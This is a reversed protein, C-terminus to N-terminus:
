WYPEEFCIECLDPDRDENHQGDSPQGNKQKSEQQSGQGAQDRPSAMNVFSRTREDPTMEEIKPTRSPTPLTKSFPSPTEGQQQAPPRQLVPSSKGQGQV